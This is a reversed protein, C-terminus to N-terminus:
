GGRPPPAPDAPAPDAPPSAPAAPAAAPAPRGGLPVLIAGCGALALGAIKPATLTEGLFLWALVPIQVVLLSNLLSAEMASLTRLAHNWLTFAFATNVLALWLVMAWQGPALAPLGQLALGAALLPLAGVGLSVATLLLPPLHAARNAHRGLLTSVANALLALGAAAFGLPQGAVPSLPGFFALAGALALGMGAWQLPTPREALFALGLLSVLAPTFNLVLNVNVAPLRSLAVFQAGQTLTYYALGLIALRAWVFRPLRRLQARAAPRLAFPLLCVWALTYRLGAFTIPPITQLGIKVIVWSTAWLSTVLLAQLTARLRSSLM